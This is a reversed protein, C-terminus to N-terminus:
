LCREARWWAEIEELRRAEEPELDRVLAAATLAAHEATATQSARPEARAEQEWGKILSVRRHAHSLQKTSLGVAEFVGLADEISADATLVHRSLYEQVLIQFVDSWSRLPRGQAHIHRVIASLEVARAWGQVTFSGPPKAPSM